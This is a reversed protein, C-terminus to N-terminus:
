RGIPLGPRQRARYQVKGVRPAAVGCKRWRGRAGIRPPLSVRAAWQHRLAAARGGGYLSISLSSVARWATTPPPLLPPRSPGPAYVIGLTGSGANVGANPRRLNGNSVHDAALGARLSVHDSLAYRIGLGLRLYATVRTSILQNFPNDYYDYRHWGGALGIRAGYDIQWHDHLVLPATFSRYVAVGLGIEEANHLDLLTVGFGRVPLLYRQHWARSGDTRWGLEAYYNDFRALPRALSNEGRLFPEALLTRGYGYGASIVTSQAGAQTPLAIVLCM